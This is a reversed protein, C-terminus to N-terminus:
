VSPCPLVGSASVWRASVYKSGQGTVRYWKRNGDVNDGWVYCDLRVTRQSNIQGWERAALRPAERVAVFNKAIVRGTVPAAAKVDTPSAMAPTATVVGTGAIMLAAVVAIGRAKNRLEYM